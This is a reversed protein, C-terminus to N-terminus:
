ACYLQLRIEDGNLDIEFDKQFSEVSTWLGVLHVGAEKLALLRVVVFIVRRALFIALDAVLSLLM